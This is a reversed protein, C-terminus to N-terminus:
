SWGFWKKNYNWCEYLIWFRCFFTLKTNCACSDLEVWVKPKFLQIVLFNLDITCVGTPPSIGWFLFLMQLELWHVLNGVITDHYTILVLTPPISDKKLLNFSSNFIWFMMENGNEFNSLLKFVLSKLAIMDYTDYCDSTQNWITWSKSKPSTLNKKNKKYTVQWIRLLLNWFQVM